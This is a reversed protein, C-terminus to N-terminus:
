QGSPQGSGASSFLGSLPIPAAASVTEGMNTTGVLRGKTMALAIHPVQASPVAVVVRADGTKPDAPDLEPVFVVTAAQVLLKATTETGQGEAGPLDVVGILDLKDGCVLTLGLTTEPPLAIARLDEGLALTRSAATGGEMKFDALHARRLVDGGVVTAAVRYGKELDAETLADAAVAARPLKALTVMDRNIRDGPELTTRAVIVPQSPVAAKLVNVVVLGALVAAALSFFFYLNRDKKRTGPMTVVGQNKPFRFM